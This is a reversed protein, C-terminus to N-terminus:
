GADLHPLKDPRQMTVDYRTTYVLPHVPKSPYEYGVV